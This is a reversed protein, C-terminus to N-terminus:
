LENDHPKDREMKELLEREEQVLRATTLSGNAEHVIFRALKKDADLQEKKILAQEDKIERMGRDVTIIHSKQRSSIGQIKRNMKNSLELAEKSDKAAAIVQDKVSNGGNKTLEKMILRVWAKGSLKDWISVLAAVGMGFWILDRLIPPLGATDNEIALLFM